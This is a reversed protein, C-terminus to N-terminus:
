AVSTQDEFAFQTDARIILAARGRGGEGCLKLQMHNSGRSESLNMYQCLRGFFFPAPPVAKWESKKNIYLLLSLSNTGATGVGSRAQLLM